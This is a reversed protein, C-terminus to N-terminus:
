MMSALKGGNLIHVVFQGILSAHPPVVNANSIAMVSVSVLVARLKGGNFSHRLNCLLYVCALWGIWGRTSSKDRKYVNSDILVWEICCVVHTYIWIGQFKSHVSMKILVCDLRMILHLVAVGLYVSCVCAIYCHKNEGIQHHNQVYM